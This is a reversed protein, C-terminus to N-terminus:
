NVGLNDGLVEPEGHLVDVAHGALALNRPM